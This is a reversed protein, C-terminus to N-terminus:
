KGRVCIIARASTKTDFTVRTQALSLIWLYTRLKKRPASDDVRDNGMAFYAIKSSKDYDIVPALATVLILSRDVNEKIKKLNPKTGEVLFKRFNTCGDTLMTVSHTLNFIILPKYVNMELDGGAGSFGV